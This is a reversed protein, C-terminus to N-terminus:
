VVPFVDQEDCYTWTSANWAVFGSLHHLLQLSGNMVHPMEVHAAIVLEGGSIEVRTESCKLSLTALWPDYCAPTGCFTMKAFSSGRSMEQSTLTLEFGCYNQNVCSTLADPTCAILAKLKLSCLFTNPASAM